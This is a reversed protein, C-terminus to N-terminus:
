ESESDPESVPESVPESGSESDSEDPPEVAGLTDPNAAIAVELATVHVDKKGKPAAIAFYRLLIADMENITLKSVDNNKKKLKEAAKPAIDSLAVTAASKKKNQEEKEAGTHLRTM